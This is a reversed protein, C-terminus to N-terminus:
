EIIVKGISLAKLSEFRMYYLGPVIRETNVSITNLGASLRAEDEFLKRGDIAILALTGTSFGESFIRINVMNDAPNPFISMAIREMGRIGTCNNVTVTVSASATCGSTTGVVTYTTTVTPSAVPSAINTASLGAAPSWAYTDAGSATLTASGTDCIAVDNGATVSPATNVTVTVQDSATAGGNDTVVLTYTTTASPAATPNATSTNSLGTSPSWSYTYPSSGGSAAPNGGIPTQGGTCVTKDNGAHASLSTLPISDVVVNRSDTCGHSDIGTARYTGPALGTITQTTDGTSWSYTYPPTGGTVSDITATGNNGSSSTSSVWTRVFQPHDVVASDIAQCGNDDSVTVIYTGKGLGTLSDTTAGNSWSYSLTGAGGSGVAAATGDTGMFCQADTSTVTVSPTLPFVTVLVDDTATAGTNDTVTVSYTTTSLPSAFPNSLTEDSLGNAPSWSYTFPPFGGNATPNGGIMEALGACSLVDSGADASLGAPVDATASVSCGNDDTVTVTYTGPALGTATSSDQAPNTDWEYAYPPTGGNAAVTATGDSGTSVTASTTATVATAPEGVTTVDEATCGNMDTVTVTYTGATLGSISDTTATNSWSYTYGGGGGSADAVAAGDDGGFCLVDTATTTIVPSQSFVNVTLSSTATDGVDDTVTVSYVTTISPGALPNAAAPDDLDTAPSWSYTYPPTGGSATPNGGITVSVGGCSLADAGADASLPQGFSCIDFQAATTTTQSLTVADATLNVATASHNSLVPGAISPAHPTVTPTVMNSFCLPNNGVKGLYIDNATGGYSDSYGTVIAGDNALTIDQIFENSSGEITFAFGVSGLTDLAIVLGEEGTGFSQTIGAVAYGDGGPLQVLSGIGEDASGGYTNFWNFTFSSTNLEGVFIDFPNGSDSMRGALVLGSNSGAVRRGEDDGAGGILFQAEIAGTSDTKVLYMDNQGAGGAGRSVGFMVFGGDEVAAVFYGVEDSNSGYANFWDVEGLSDTKLLFADQGGSGFNRTMGTIIFGNDLTPGAYTAYEELSDLGYTKAWQLDGNLDTKILLIDDNNNTFSNSRGAIAYGDPAQTIVSGFETQAGGYQKHWVFNGAADSKVLIADYGGAGMYSSSGVSYIDGYGDMFSMNAYDDSGLDFTNQFPQASVIAFVFLFVSSSLLKKM